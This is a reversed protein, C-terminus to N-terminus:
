YFQRNQDGGDQMFDVLFGWDHLKKIVSWLITHLEASKVGSTPHCVSFRLGTYGVFVVQLVHSALNAKVEKDKLIQAHRNQIGTDMWGILKPYGGKM